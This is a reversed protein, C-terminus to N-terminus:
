VLGYVRERCSARGIKFLIQLAGVVEEPNGAQKVGLNLSPISVGEAAYLLMPIFLAALLVACVIHAKKM